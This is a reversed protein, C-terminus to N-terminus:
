FVYLSLTHCVDLLFCLKADVGMSCEAKNENKM